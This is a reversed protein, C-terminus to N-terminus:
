QTEPDQNVVSIFNIRKRKVSPRKDKLVLTILNVTSKKEQMNKFGTVIGDM